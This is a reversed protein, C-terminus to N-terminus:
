PPDVRVEYRVTQIRLRSPLGDQAVNSSGDGGSRLMLMEGQLVWLSFLPLVVRSVM